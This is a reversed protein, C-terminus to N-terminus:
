FNEGSRRRHVWDFRNYGMQIATQIRDLAVSRSHQGDPQFPPSQNSPHSSCFDAKNAIGFMELTRENCDFFGEENLLM